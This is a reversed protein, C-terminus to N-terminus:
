IHKKKIESILIKEFMVFKDSGLIEESIIEFLERNELFLYLDEGNRQYDKIISWKIESNADKSKYRMSESDFSFEFNMELSEAQKELNKIFKRCVIEFHLIFYLLFLGLISVISISFLFLIENGFYLGLSLLVLILVLLLKLPIKKIERKREFEFYRKFTVKTKDLDFVVSTSEM